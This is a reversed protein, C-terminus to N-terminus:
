TVFLRTGGMQSHPVSGQPAGTGSCRRHGVPRIPDSIDTGMSTASVHLRYTGEGVSVQLSCVPDPPRYIRIAVGAGHFRARVYTVDRFGKALGAPSRRESSRSLREVGCRPVLVGEQAHM